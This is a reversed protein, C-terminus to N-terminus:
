VGRAHINMPLLNHELLINKIGQEFSIKPKRNLHKQAKTYDAFTSSVDYNNATKYNKIIKKQALQEIVELMTTISIPKGSGLNFIEHQTSQYNVAKIIGDVIDDIHTWDRMSSGDWYIELPRNKLLKDICISYMMDPRWMPGYVSFLRLGIFWIKSEKAYISAILENGKKTMAYISLPNETSSVENLPGKGQEGYVSSSSAYVIHQITFKKATEILNIFGILNTQIYLQPSEMSKRVWAQAALHCIKSIDPFQRFCNEIDKINNIDGLFFSFNPYKTLMERRQQKIHPNYYSNENDLGIIEHGLELLKKSLHFGIFGSSWTILIKQNM